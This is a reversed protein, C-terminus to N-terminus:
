HVPGVPGFKEVAAALAPDSPRNADLWVADFTFTRGRAAGGEALLTDRRVVFGARLQELDGKESPATARALRRDVEAIQEDLHKASLKSRDADRADRFAGEGGLALKVVGVGRGRDGSSIIHVGGMRQAALGRAEGSQLIFDVESGSAQALQLTDGFPLAALVVIVEAEGRLRRAEALVAASAPAGKYKPAGLVPGVPSAGILAVKVEGVKVMTSAPFVRKGDPGLLNASLVPLGIKAANDKLWQPSPGFDRAGAAMAATGLAKMTRLVFRARDGSARDNLAIGAFLANGADVVLAPGEAKKEEILLKRRALGGAPNM